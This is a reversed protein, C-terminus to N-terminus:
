SLIAALLGVRNKSWNTVKCNIVDVDVTYSVNVLLSSQQVRTFKEMGTPNILIRNTIKHKM